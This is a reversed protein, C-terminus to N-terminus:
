FACKDVILNSCNSIYGDSRIMLSNAMNNGAINVATDSDIAYSCTSNCINTISFVGDVSLSVCASSQDASADSFHVSGGPRLSANSLVSGDRKTVSVFGNRYMIRVDADDYCEKFSRSADVSCCSFVCLFMLLRFFNVMKVM